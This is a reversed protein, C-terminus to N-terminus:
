KLKGLIRKVEEISSKEDKTLVGFKTAEKALEDLATSAKEKKEELRTPLKDNVNAALNCFDDLVSKGFETIKNKEDLLGADRFSKIYRQVSSRQKNLEKAVGSLNLGKSFLILANIKEISDLASLVNNLDIASRVKFPTRM